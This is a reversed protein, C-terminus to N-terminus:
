KSKANDRELKKLKSKFIGLMVVASHVEPGYRQVSNRRLNEARDVLLLNSPDRNEKNGDIFVLFHGAPVPGNEAEWNLIHVARWNTKKNGDDAVKRYLIGYIDVREAGIPRRKHWFRAKGHSVKAAEAHHPRSDIPLGLRKARRYTTGVSRGLKEAIAKRTMVPWLEVLLADDEPEWPRVDMTRKGATNVQEMDLVRYM